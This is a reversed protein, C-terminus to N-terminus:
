NPLYCHEVTRPSGAGRACARALNGRTSIAPGLPTLKYLLKTFKQYINFHVYSVDFQMSSLEINSSKSDSFPSFPIDPRFSSNTSIMYLTDILNIDITQVIQEDITQINYM